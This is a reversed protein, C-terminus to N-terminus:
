EDISAKLLDIEQKEEANIFYITQLQTLNNFLQVQINYFNESAEDIMQIQGIPINKPFVVSSGHTVITDGLKAVATKEVDVLQVIHPSKGNWILSGFAGTNKIAGSISSRRNLLPLIKSYNDTVETVIGVIGLPSVVGMDVAVGQNKGGYALFYNNRFQYPSSVIRGTIYSFSSDIPPKQSSTNTSFLNQSLQERLQRNEEILKKNEKGLNFYDTIKVEQHYVWASISQTNKLYFNQQASHLSTNILFCLSLLVFLLLLNANKTLLAILQRM